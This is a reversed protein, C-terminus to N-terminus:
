CKEDMPERVVKAVVGRIVQAIASTHLNVRSNSVRDSGKHDRIIQSSASNGFTHITSYTGTVASSSVEEKENKGSMGALSSGQALIYATKLGNARGPSSVWYPIGTGPLLPLIDSSKGPHVNITAQQGSTL